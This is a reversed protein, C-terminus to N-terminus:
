ALVKGLVIREAEAESVGLGKAVLKTRQRLVEYPDTADTVDMQHGQFDTLSIVEIEIKQRKIVVREFAM